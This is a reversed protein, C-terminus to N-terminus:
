LKRTERKKNIKEIVEDFRTKPSESANEGLLLQKIIASQEKNKTELSEIQKAYKEELVATVDAIVTNKDDKAPEETPKETPEETPKETPEETPKETEKHAPNAGTDPAYYFDLLNEILKQLLIFM